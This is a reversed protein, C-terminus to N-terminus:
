LANGQRTALVSRMFAYRGGDWGAPRGQAKGVDPPLLVRIGRGAVADM